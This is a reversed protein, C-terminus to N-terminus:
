LKILEGRFLAVEAGYHDAIKVATLASRRSDTAFVSYQLRRGGGSLSSLRNMNGWFRPNPKGKFDYIVLWTGEEGEDGECEEYFQEALSRRGMGVM